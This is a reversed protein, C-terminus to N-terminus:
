KALLKKLKEVNPIPSPDINELVALYVGVFAGIQISSLVQSLKYSGTAQISIADHGSEKILQQCIENRKAIVPSNLDSNLFIYLAHNKFGVPFQLAELLHHNMEPVPHEAAYTKANENIQNRMAHMAGQLFEGACYIPVKDFLKLALQKAFNQDTPVDPGYLRTNEETIHVIDDLEDSSINILGLRHLLALQGVLSYGIAMRPQNCPNYTPEVTYCLTNNSRAYEQLDGGTTISFIQAGKDLADKYGQLTEETNGSYSQTIVLTSSDVYNPLHYDNIIEYPYKLHQAYSYRTVYAGLSSGGMGSFVIKNILKYSEPLTLKHVDEWGHKFQQGLLKVSGLQDQTDLSQIHSIDDLTM